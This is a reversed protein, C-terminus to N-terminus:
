QGNVYMYSIKEFFLFIRFFTNKRQMPEEVFGLPIYNKSLLSQIKSFLWGLALQLVFSADHVFVLFFVVGEAEKTNKQTPKQTPKLWVTALFTTGFTALCWLYMMGVTTALRYIKGDLAFGSAHESWDVGVGAELNM